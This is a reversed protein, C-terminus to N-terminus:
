FFLFSFSVVTLPSKNLVIVTCLSQFSPTLPPHHHAHTCDSASYVHLFDASLKYFYFFDNSCGLLVLRVNWRSWLCLLCITTQVKVSFFTSLKTVSAMGLTLSWAQIAILNCSSWFDVRCSPWYVTCLLERIFSSLAAVFVPLEKNTTSTKITFLSYLSM